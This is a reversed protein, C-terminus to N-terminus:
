MGKAKQALKYLTTLAELPTLTDADINKLEDIIEDDRESQLSIQLPM